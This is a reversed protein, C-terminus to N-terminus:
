GLQVSEDVVVLTKGHNGGSFLLNLAEPANELGAVLHEQHHLTGAMVMGALELQAEIFRDAFDLIIFGEMRARRMILMASNFLGARE